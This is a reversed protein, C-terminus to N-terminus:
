SKPTPVVRQSALALSDGNLRLQLRLLQSPCCNPDKPGYFGADGRLTRPDIRFGHQLRGAFGRPLQDLWTQWVPTWQGNPQRQLFEQGCGGTGNVCTLVSLIATGGASAAIEPTISRYIGYGDSEFRAHWVASIRGPKTAQLLVAEGETVTDRAAAGRTSDEPTFQSIWRYQAAFWPGGPAAALRQYSVVECGTALLSDGHPGLLQQNDPADPLVLCHHQAGSDPANVPPSLLGLVAERLM